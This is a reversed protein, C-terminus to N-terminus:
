QDGGVKMHFDATKNVFMQKEEEDGSQHQSGLCQSLCRVPSGQHDAKASSLHFRGAHFKALRLYSPQLYQLPSAQVDLCLYLSQPRGNAANIAGAAGTIVAKALTGATTDAAKPVIPM